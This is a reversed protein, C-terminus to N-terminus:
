NNDQLQRKLEELELRLGDAEATKEELAQKTKDLEGQVHSFSRLAVLARDRWELIALQCVTPDHANPTRKAMQEAAFAVLKDM